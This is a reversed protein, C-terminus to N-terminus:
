TKNKKSDIAIKVLNNWWVVNEPVIDGMYEDNWYEKYVMMKLTQLKDTPLENLTSQFNEEAEKEDEKQFKVLCDPCVRMDSSEDLTLDDEHVPCDCEQCKKMASYGGESAGGDPSFYFGSERGM